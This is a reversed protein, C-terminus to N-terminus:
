YLNNQLIYQEVELISLEKNLKQRLETSSVELIKSEILHSKVGYKKELYTKQQNLDIELERKFVVLECLAFIEEFERWKDITLFSDSGIILYLKDGEKKLEKLTDITYSTGGKKIEIDLVQTFDLDKCMIECMEMRNYPTPSNLPIKKHSPINNPIVYVKDLNLNKYAELIINKHGKHPPNFTGGM